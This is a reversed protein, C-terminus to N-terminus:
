GAFALDLRERSCRITEPDCGWRQQLIAVLDGADLGEVVERAVEIVTPGAASAASDGRRDSRRLRDLLGM